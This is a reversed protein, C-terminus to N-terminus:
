SMTNGTTHQSSPTAELHNQHQKQQTKNKNRKKNLVDNNSVARGSTITITSQANGPYPVAAALAAGGMGM